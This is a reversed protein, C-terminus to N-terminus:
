MGIYWSWIASGYIATIVAGLALFPGFPIEDKRGKRRVLLLFIGVLGGLIFAILLGMSIWRIGLFLGIVGALKVDGMGMGGRALLALLLLFGFGAAAGALGQLWTKEPYPIVFLMALGVSLAFLVLENPIIRDHLDVLAAVAVTAILFIQQWFYEDLPHEVALLAGLLGTVAALLPAEWPEPRQTLWRPAVRAGAWGLLAGAAAGAAVQWGNM